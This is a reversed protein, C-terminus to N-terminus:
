LCTSLHTSPYSRVTGESCLKLDRSAFYESAEKLHVEQATGVRCARLTALLGVVNPPQKPKKPNSARTSARSPDSAAQEQSAAPQKPCSAANTQQHVLVVDFSVINVRRASDVVSTTM